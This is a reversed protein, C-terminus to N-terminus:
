SMCTEFPNELIVVYRKNMADLFREIDDVIEGYADLRFVTQAAKSEEKLMKLNRIVGSYIWPPKRCGMFIREM